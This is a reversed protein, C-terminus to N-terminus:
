DPCLQRAIAIMVDIGAVPFELKVGAQLTESRKRPKLPEDDIGHALQWLRKGTFGFQSQLEPVSLEAIEGIRDLGLLHLRFIIDPDFPLLNSTLPALFEAEFGTPVIQTKGPPTITGAAFACFRGTAVGISTDLGSADRIVRLIHECLDVESRYHLQLGTVNLYARGMDEDEIEPTVDNLTRLIGEWTNRYRVPDPPVITAEPCLGTAERITM